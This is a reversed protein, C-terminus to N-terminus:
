LDRPIRVHLLGIMHAIKVMLRKRALTLRGFPRIPGDVFTWYALHTRGPPMGRLADLIYSRVWPKRDFMAHPIIDGRRPYVGMSESGLLAVPVDSAMVAANLIDQDMSSFELRGGDYKIQSMDIGETELAEMLDVWVRAFEAYSRSLGICGGNMYGTVARCTYGRSEALAQWARRYVHQPPMFTNSVDHALVVGHRAWDSLTEWRCRVVIDSDLYYVLAADPRISQFVESILRPKLNNLHWPGPMEVLCLKVEPSVLWSRPAVDPELDDLWRPPAGRYGVIIEGRFGGRVLSNVLAAVGCFYHGEALTCVIDIGIPHAASRLPTVAEDSAVACEGAIIGTDLSM